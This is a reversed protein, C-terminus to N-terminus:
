RTPPPPFALSLLALIYIATGILVTSQYGFNILLLTALASGMMSFFGNVGWYIILPANKDQSAQTLGLPFPMGMFLGMASVAVVAAILKTAM